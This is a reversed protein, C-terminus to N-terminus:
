RVEKATVAQNESLARVVRAIGVKLVRAMPVLHGLDPVRDGNEWRRWSRVAVGCMRACYAQSLAQRDRLEKLTEGCGPPRKM